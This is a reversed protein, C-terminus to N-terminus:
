VERFHLALTRVSHSTKPSEAKVRTAVEGRGRVQAWTPLGLYQTERVM